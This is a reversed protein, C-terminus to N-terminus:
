DAGKFKLRGLEYQKFEDPLMTYLRLYAIMPGPIKRDGRLWFWIAKPTVGVLRALDAQGIENADIIRRLESGTM